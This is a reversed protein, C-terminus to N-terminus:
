KFFVGLLVFIIIAALAGLRVVQLANSLYLAQNIQNLADLLQQNTVAETIVTPDM